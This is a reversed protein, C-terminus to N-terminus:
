LALVFPNPAHRKWGAESVLLDLAFTALDDCMAEVAAEETQYFTKSYNKCEGCTEAKAYKSYSEISHIAVEREGGCVICSVRTHHWATSCLGCTLFRRGYAEDGVIVGAVPPSGCVPCLGHTDLRRVASADLQSAMRAFEVQLAAATFLMEGQWQPAASRTLYSRALTDLHADGAERLNGLVTVSERPLGDPPIAGAIFRLAARYSATPAWDEPSLLPMGHEHARAIVVPVPADVPEGQSCAGAQATFVQGMLRLFAAMPHGSALAAIRAARKEFLVPLRPLRVFEDAAATGINLEGFQSATM